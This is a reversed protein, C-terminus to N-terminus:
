IFGVEQLIKSSFHFVPECDKIRFESFQINKELINDACWIEFQTGFKVPFSGRDVWTVLKTKTSRGTLHVRRQQKCINNKNKQQNKKVKFLTFIDFLAAAEGISLLSLCFLFCRDNNIACYTVAPISTCVQLM